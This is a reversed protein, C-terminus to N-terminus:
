KGISNNIYGTNIELLESIRGRIDGDDTIFVTREIIAPVSSFEEGLSRLFHNSALTSKISSNDCLVQAIQKWGCCTIDKNRDLDLERLMVNEKLAGTLISISEDDIDNDRLSLAKLRTDDHQVLDVLAECGQSGLYNGGMDLEELQRLRSFLSSFEEWVVWLGFSNNRLELVRIGTSDVAAALARLCEMDLVLSNFKLTVLKDNERLYRPLYLLEGDEDSDADGDEGPRPFSLATCTNSHLPCM